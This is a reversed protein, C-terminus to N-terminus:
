SWTRLWGQMLRTWATERRYGLGDQLAVRSLGVVNAHGPSKVLDSLGGLGQPAGLRVPWGWVRELREQMGKLLGGGGVLVVGGPPGKTWSITKLADQVMTLWEDVRAEVIASVEDLGVLKVTQGNVSKLEVMGEAQGIASAREIKLREAQAAVVGLGAALDSTILDGGVPVVALLRPLGGRWVAVQTTGGGVDLLVVGLQREDESLAGWAAALGAPIWYPHSLGAMQLTRRLNRLQQTQASVVLCEMTLQQVSLGVPNGVSSLGDLEFNGRIVRISERAPEANQREARHALADLDQESVSRGHLDATVREVRARVHDGNVSAAVEVPEFGAMSTARNVADRVSQSAREPEVVLGRKVGAIPTVAIGLVAIDRDSRVEAVLAAAKTTGVDVALVRQRRPM